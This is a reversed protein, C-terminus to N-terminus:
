STTGLSIHSPRYSISIGYSNKKIESTRNFLKSSPDFIVIAVIGLVAALFSWISRIDRPGYYRFAAGGCWFFMIFLTIWLIVRQFVSREISMVILYKPLERSLILWISVAVFIIGPVVVLWPTIALGRLFIGIDGNPSFSRLPVYSFVEGINWITFWYLILFVWRLREVAERRLLLVCAIFLLTNVILPSIAILSAAFGRGSSILIDYNVNEDVNWLTFGGYHIDFPSDKVGSLWALTGHTWEHCLVMLHHSLVITLVYVLVLMARRGFSSEKM